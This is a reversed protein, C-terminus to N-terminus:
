IKQACLSTFDQKMLANNCLMRMTTRSITRQQLKSKNHGTTKLLGMGMGLINSLSTSAVYFSASM